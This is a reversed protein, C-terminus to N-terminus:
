ENEWVPELHENISIINCTEELTINPEIDEIELDEIPMWEVDNNIQVMLENKRKSIVKKAKKKTNIIRNHIYKRHKKLMELSAFYLQCDICIREDIIKSLSPCYSDYAIDSSIILNQFLSAFKINDDGASAIKLNPTYKLPLPAPLFRNQFFNFYTSRVSSCCTTDQCKVIQLLYQSSRIHNMKWTENVENTFNIEDEPDDPQVYETIVPFGDIVVNEFIKALSEGAYGFNQKELEIDVTKGNKDLHTGYHEHPLIVGSLQRSLPAMRREVPNFASRGPANTAIFLADLNFKLFHDIAANITKPYRPNEDPGGDVLLIFIPKEKGDKSKTVIDFEELQMLHSFDRAHSKATSTSHKGSRITIFTPGSYSVAEKSGYGKEKIIIGAYVSPILKHRDGVVWDHDPLTVRYEVHMVMPAQAKAATIGIPVRCKDDQSIISVTDPGLFSALENLNNITSAAFKSDEHDKHLSNQARILKVPVTQVHRKGDITRSNTPLLHYYLASRSLKYGRNSLEHHLEDLTKISHMVEMRRREDTSSGYKAIDIIANLIEPQEEVISPRGAKSKVKLKHGLDPNEVIAQQIVEKKEKRAKKQRQQDAKKKEIEREIERKRKSKTEIERQQDDTVMNASKRTILGILDANLITLEQRLQEQKPCKSVQSDIEINQQPQKTQSSTQADKTKSPGPLERTQVNSSLPISQFFSAISKQTKVHKNLERVKEDYLEIFNSEEKIRNWYQVCIAQVKQKATTPNAKIFANYLDDYLKGRNM